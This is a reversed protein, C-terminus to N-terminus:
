LRSQQLTHNDTKGEARADNFDHEVAALKQGHACRLAVKGAIVGPGCVGIQCAGTCIPRAFLIQLCDPLMGVRQLLCM